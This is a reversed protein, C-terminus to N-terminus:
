LLLQKVVTYKMSENISVGFSQNIGAMSARMLIHM